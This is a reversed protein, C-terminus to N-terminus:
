QSLEEDYKYIPCNHAAPFGERGFECAAMKREEVVHACVGCQGKVDYKSEWGMTDLHKNM